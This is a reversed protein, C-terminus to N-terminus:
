RTVVVRRVQRAGMAELHLFYIGARLEDGRTGRGDWQIAHRGANVMSRRELTRVLRGQLDYLGLRVPSAAPLDYRILALGPAPNPVPPYLFLFDPIAVEADLPNISEMVAFQSFHTVSGCVVNGVVDHSTTIQVWKPPDQTTDFHMLKLNGENGSVQAPDYNICVTVQGTFTATTSIVYYLPPSSPMIKLGAPPATGGPQFTIPTQGAETVNQFTLTVNALTVSVNTGVPTNGSVQGSPTLTAFASANGTADVACLKYYSWTSGADIYGTDPKEVVFTTSDPVFTDSPGRHLRYLAFDPESNAGWHLQVPGGNFVGTFPSPVAPPGDENLITCTAASDALTANTPASLTLAFSENPEIDTDGNVTITVTASDTKAAITATGSAAVYDNGAVTASGNQTQYHVTAPQDTPHSLRLSFVAATPGSNGEVVTVDNITLSPTGDDNLITCQGVSDAFSANTAHTLRLTFTENSEKVLDGNVPVTITGTFTKPDITATGSSSVFDGNALTASGEFTQYDVTVTSSTKASLSITFIASTTGSDGEQLSVDGISVQPPGDGSGIAALGTQSMGGISKFGGGVYVATDSEAITYVISNADANWVTALGTVADLAAIRSRSQGGAMTFMGGAYVTGGRISITMVLGNANANWATALGTTKDIEAIGSRTQGGIVNFGGGAYVANGDIAIAYIPSGTTNPNPNWATALGTTADLAALLNRSQGGITSFFGGAYITNGNMLLTRVGNNPNPNWSTALGTAADLAALNNRSQGGITNFSGAVYVTSGNLGLAEVGSNANPNWATALGTTRDLAAVSNRPQGGITAFYGGAYVVTGDLALAHVDSSAQPDWATVMGTRVDLAAINRRPQGGISSFYGGVYAIGGNIALCAPSNSARPNWSTALATNADLAALNSRPQGGIATFNGGVYVTGGDVAVVNMGSGNAGPNWSTALGTSADLAAVFNRSQGGIFSFNGAAYVTSGSVALSQVAGNATPNWPTALGTTADLAALNSRPLGGITTFNGGVYVTGGNVVVASIGSGNAGPNWSTVLGTSADLAAVFNRSQGGIFSFYGAAYVTSGSVTLSQVAGNATPNWPTALGTTADLAAIQNRSQGGISTFYGGVYVTNGIIALSSVADNPSPDWDAVTYDSLIHAIHNRPRGGVNTFRGGIYWGGTGDPIVALVSEGFIWTSPPDHVEPFSALALATAADVPVGPGTSPGVFSFNGGIYLTDGALLSTYVINDTAYFDPRVGVVKRITCQGVGDAITANVPNSLVATFVEEPEFVLDGNVTVAISASQTHAPITLSGSAFVYDNNALTASGDQTQYNSAVPQDSPNSLSITFTAPTTGSSPEGVLVDSISISPIPDDNLITCQGVSDSILPYNSITVTFIENSEHILDGKITISVTTVTDQAPISATGSAGVYDNDAVTASGDHTQYHVTVPQLVAAPIRVKFVANTTGSNGESLTVDGISVRPPIFRNAYIDYGNGTRRDKWAVIAGGAGVGAIAPTSQDDAATCFAAGDAPWAGDVAGTSLVHQAYIDLGGGSRPDEWTVFAGGEGDSVIASPAQDGLAGCV